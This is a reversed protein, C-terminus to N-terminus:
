EFVFKGTADTVAELVPQRARLPWSGAPFTVVDPVGGYGKRSMTEMTKATEEDIRQPNNKAKALWGAVDKCVSSIKQPRVIAGEIPRGELDIIRGEIPITSAVLKLELDKHFICDKAGEADCDHQYDQLPCATCAMGFDPATAIVVSSRSNVDNLDRGFNKSMLQELDEDTLSFKFAGNEDSSTTKISEMVFEHPPQTFARSYLTVTAGSKAKGDPTTVTGVVDHLESKAIDSAVLEGEVFQRHGLRITSLGVIAILAGAVLTRSVTRSVPVHSRALDLLSTVRYELKSTSAMAVGFSSSSLKYTRAIQVLEEAYDSPKQGTSIVYDDCAFEREVRLRRLGFWALPHFWYAACVVFSITQILVDKRKIHALEHMLVTRARSQSWDESGAPLAVVPKGIGWTMPVIAQASELLRVPRDLSLVAQTEFLLQIWAAGTVPKANAGLRYNHVASAILRFLCILFGTLWVVFLISGAKLFSAFPTSKSNSQKATTASSEILALGDISAFGDTSDVNNELPTTTKTSSDIAVSFSHNDKADEPVSITALQIEESAVAPNQAPLVPVNWSPLFLIAIPLVALGCFSLFWVRHRVAASWRRVIVTLTWTLLIMASSCIAIELIWHSQFVFM